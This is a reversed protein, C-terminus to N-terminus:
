PNIVLKNRYVAHGAFARIYYVGPPLASVDYSESINGSSMVLRGAADFIELRRTENQLSRPWQINIRERAPNPYILLSGSEEWRDEVSTPERYLFPRLMIVGPAGSSEWMGQFNYFMVSSPRNNLDLGINLLYQNYQRWGIFFTGDVPVPQTFEYRVFGPYTDAYAPTQDAEDEWIVSGPRGEVENWVMLKFYYGLNLSDYVHNFQMYVGGLNDPEFSHYKLAVLGDRTGGGRLGYGAEPTGDDYAYYDKFYQEHVVTDNMKPDFEDTRLAAKFRLLASDGRSLDLPYLYGFEVATDQMSPIDQSTPDMPSYTENYYPETVTLSRTINRSITDNNRYRAFAYQDLVTNYAAEFHSWPLSTLEKLISNLPTIFAVDRLVTDARFRNRDMRVYDIHWYDVNSRMDAYDSNRALSARNRFRFRFGDQLFQPDTVPIMVQSFPLLSDSGPTGWVNIWRASDPAYFDVLLSDQEEPPDCLGAPQYFFSLYISDSAPYDLEVPQSTLHDAVFSNPDITARAYISGDADLADLTVVGNSVPAVAFNNNVFAFRDEWIDPDPFGDSTSFDDLLPLVIPVVEAGKKQGSLRAHAEAAAPNDYLPIIVEQAISLPSLVMGFILSAVVSYVSNM